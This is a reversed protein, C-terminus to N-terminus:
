RSKQLLQEAVARIALKVNDDKETTLLRQLAFATNRDGTTQLAYVASFRVSAHPHNKAMNLLLPEALPEGILGLADIASLKLSLSNEQAAAKMLEDVAERAGIRGLNIAAKARIDEVPSHRLVHLFVDAAERSRMSGLVYLAVRQEKLDAGDDMLVSRLIPVAADGIQELIRHQQLQGERCSRVIERVAAEVSMGETRMQWYAWAIDPEGPELPLVAYLGYDVFNLLAVKLAELSRKDGIRALARACFMDLEAFGGASSNAAWRMLLSVAQTCQLIGLARAGERVRRWVKVKDEWPSEAPPESVGIWNMMEQVYAETGKARYRIREIVVEVEDAFDEELSMREEGASRKRAEVINQLMPIIEEGATDGLRALAYYRLALRKNQVDLTVREAPVKQALFADDLYALLASPERESTRYVEVMQPLTAKQVIAPLVTQNRRSQLPSDAESAAMTMLLLVLALLVRIGM